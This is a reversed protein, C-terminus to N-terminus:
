SLRQNRHKLSAKPQASAEIRRMASPRYLVLPSEVSGALIAGGHSEHRIVASLENMRAPKRANLGGARRGAAAAM